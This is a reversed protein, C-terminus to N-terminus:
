LIQKVDINPRLFSVCSKLLYFRVMGISFAGFFRYFDYLLARYIDISKYMNCIM